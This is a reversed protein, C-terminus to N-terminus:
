CCKSSIRKFGSALNAFLISRSENPGARGRSLLFTGGSSLILVYVETYLLTYSPVVQQVTAATQPSSHPSSCSPAQFTTPAQPSSSVSNSNVVSSTQSPSSQQVPVSATASASAPVSPSSHASAVVTPQVSTAASQKVIQISSPIPSTTSTATTISVHQNFSDVKSPVSSQSPSVSSVSAHHSDPQQASISPSNHLQQLFQQQLFQQQLQQLQLHAAQEAQQVQRQQEQLQLAAAEAALAAERHQEEQQQRQRLLEQQHLEQQQQQQLLLQQQQQQQLLLQQQQQQPTAGTIAPARTLTVRRLMAQPANQKVTLTVLSHVPGLLLKLVEKAELKHVSRGDVECLLDGCPFFQGSLEAPSGQRFGVIEVHGTEPSPKLVLGVGVKDESPVGTAAIAAQTVASDQRLAGNALPQM